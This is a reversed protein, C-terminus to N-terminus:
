EQLDPLSRVLFLQEIGLKTRIFLTIHETNTVKGHAPGGITKDFKM